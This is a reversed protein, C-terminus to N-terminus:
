KQKPPASLSHTFIHMHKKLLDERRQRFPISQDQQCIAPLTCTPPRQKLLGNLSEWFATLTLHSSPLCFFSYHSIILDTIFFFFLCLFADVKIADMIFLSILLLFLSTFILQVTDRLHKNARHVPSYLTWTCLLIGRERHLAAIIIFVTIIMKWGYILMHQNFLPHKLPLHCVVLQRCYRTDTYSAPNAGCHNQTM